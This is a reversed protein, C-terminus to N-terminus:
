TTNDMSDPLTFKDRTIGILKRAAITLPDIVSSIPPVYSTEILSLQHATVGRSIMFSMSDIRGKVGEKSIIQSGILRFNKDVLIKVTIIEGKPFYRARTLGKAMSERPFIGNQIARKSNVGVAGIELEGIISVGPSVIPTYVTNTGLINEAVTLAQRVATSGLASLTPRFTVGDIVEICNGCAFVNPLFIGNKRVRLCSDTILGGTVGREIGSEVVMEVNPRVGVSVLVMDTKIKGENTIVTTVKGKEGEFEIVQTDKLFTIGMSILYEEVILSMDPDLISGMIHPSREIVIVDKNRKKFAYAMELGIAGGGVITITNSNKLAREVEIAEELSYMFYIGELDIGPINPVFPKVGTAIVLIDYPYNDKNTIVVQKETDIGTVRTNTKISIAMDEYHKPTRMILNDFSKIMGSVVFPIGCPSYSFYNRDSLVTIEIDKTEKRVQSAVPLGAPGAGIIVLKKKM